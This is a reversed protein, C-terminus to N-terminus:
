NLFRMNPFVSRMVEDPYRLDIWRAWDANNAIGRTRECWRIMAALTLGADALLLAFVAASLPVGLWQPTILFLREFFPQVFWVWAVSLAGWALFSMLCVRGNINFLRQSYDWSRTGFASEQLWSAGYELASCAVAGALFVAAAERWGKPSLSLWGFLLYLAVAGVGYITNFPGYLLGTRRTLQGTRALTMTTEFICGLVSGIVFYWLIRCLHCRAFLNTDARALAASTNIPSM